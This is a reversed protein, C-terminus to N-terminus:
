FPYSNEWASIRIDFSIAEPMPLACDNASMGIAYSHFISGVYSPFLQAHYWVKLAVQAHHWNGAQHANLWQPLQALRLPAAKKCQTAPIDSVVLHFNPSTTTYHKLVSRM